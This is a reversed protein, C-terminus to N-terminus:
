LKCCLLVHKYFVHECKSNILTSVNVQGQSQFGPPRPGAPSSAPTHHPCSAQLVLSKLFGRLLIAGVLSGPDLEPGDPILPPGGQQFRSDRNGADMHHRNLYLFLVFMHFCIKLALYTDNVTLLIRRISACGYQIVGFM